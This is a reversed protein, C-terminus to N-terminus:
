DTAVDPDPRALGVNRDLMDLSCQPEAGAGASARRGIYYADRM